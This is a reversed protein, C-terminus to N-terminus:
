GRNHRGLSAALEACSRAARRLGAARPESCRKASELPLGEAVDPPFEPDYCFSQDDIRENLTM